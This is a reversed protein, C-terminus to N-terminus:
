KLLRDIEAKIIRIGVVIRDRILGNKLSAFDCYEALYHLNNIFIEFLEGPLQVRTNFNYGEFIIIKRSIFHSEFKNLTDRLVSPENSFQLLSNNIGLGLNM